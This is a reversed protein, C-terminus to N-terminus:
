ILVADSAVTLSSMVRRASSVPDGTTDQHESSKTSAGM